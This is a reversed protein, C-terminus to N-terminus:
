GLSRFDHDCRALRSLMTRRILAVAAEVAPEVALEKLMLVCTTQQLPQSLQLPRLEQSSPLLDLLFATRYCIGTASRMGLMWENADFRNRRCPLRWLGRERLAQEGLRAIGEPYGASPFAACDEPSAAQLGALPHAPNLALMVADEVLPVVAYPSAPDRMAQDILEGALDLTSSIMLDIRRERLHIAIQDASLSIEPLVDLQTDLQQLLGSAAFTSLVKLQGSELRWCQFASRLMCLSSSHRLRAPDPAGRRDAVNIGLDVLMEHSRRSVKSPSVGRLDAVWRIQAYLHWLDLLDLSEFLSCRVPSGPM